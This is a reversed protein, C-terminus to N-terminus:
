GGEANVAEVADAAGRRLQEGFAALDGSMPGAAAITIENGSPKSPAQQAACASLIAAALATLVIARFRTIMHPSSRRPVPSIRFLGRNCCLSAPHSAFLFLGPSAGPGEM